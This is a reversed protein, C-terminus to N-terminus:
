CPTGAICPPTGEGALAVSASLSPLRGEIAVRERTATIKTIYTQVVQQREEDTLKGLGRAVAACMARVDEIPLVDAVVSARRDALELAKRRLVHRQAKLAASKSEYRDADLKEAIYLDLLRSEQHEVDQEAKTLRAIEKDTDKAQASSDDALAEVDALVRGPDRLLDCLTGWVVRELVPAPVSHVVRSADPTTHSCRYYVLQGNTVGSMTHNCLGCKVLGGGLLYSHKANRRAFRRNHGLQSNAADWLPRDVTAPVATFHQDATAQRKRIQKGDEAKGTVITVGHAAQGYYVPNNIIKKISAYAWTQQGKPTPIAERTFTEAIKTTSHGATMLEFIRRVVSATTTDVELYGPTNSSRDRRILRYGYPATSRMVEGRQTVKVHKGALTRELITDREFEAIAGLVNRILRGTPITTDISEKVTVVDCGCAELDDWITLLLKLNRALRDMKLTIVADIKGAHVDQVLRKLAPRHAIGLTGSVGDDIYPEGVGEWGKAM